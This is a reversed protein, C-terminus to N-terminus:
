SWRPIATEAWRPSSAVEPKLAAAVRRIVEDPKTMWHLAANSFVADYPGGLDATQADAVKFEINPYSATAQGIMSLSSNVGSAAAGTEAIRATLHGTGCGIDLIAEGSKPNLLDFVGSGLRTVFSVTADYKGADWSDPQAGM